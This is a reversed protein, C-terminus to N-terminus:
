EEKDEISKPMSQALEIVFESGRGDKRKSEIVKLRPKKLWDSADINRMYASVRGNSESVGTFKFSDVTQSIKKLYIGEPMTRVIEDFVHVIQPRRQQLSQIIEMRALLREKTEELDKIEKLEAELKTIETTLINNRYNQHDILKSVNVHVLFVIAAAFAVSMILLSIFQRTQEARREERWPLLNIHAM